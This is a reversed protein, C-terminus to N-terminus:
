KVRNQRVRSMTEPQQSTNYKDAPTMNQALPNGDKDPRVNPNRAGRNQALWREDPDVMGHKLNLNLDRNINNILQLNRSLSIKDKGYLKGSTFVIERQPNGKSKAFKLYNDVLMKAIIPKKRASVALNEVLAVLREMQSPTVFFEEFELRYLYRVAVDIGRRTMRGIKSVLDEQSFRLAGQDLDETSENIKKKLSLQRRVEEKLKSLSKSNNKKSLTESIRRAVRKAIKDINASEMMNQPAENEDEEDSDLGMDEDSDLDMDEDSDLDTDEDSDLDTDSTDGLEDEMDLDDLAEDAGGGEVDINVGLEQSLVDAFAKLAKAVSAEVETSQGAGSADGVEEMDPSLDSEIDGMGPEMGAEDKLEGENESEDELEQLMDYDDYDGGEEKMENLFKERHSKSIGAFKMFNATQAESILSKRKRM